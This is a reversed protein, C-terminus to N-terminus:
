GCFLWVFQMFSQHTSLVCRQFVEGGLRVMTLNRFSLLSNLVSHDRM